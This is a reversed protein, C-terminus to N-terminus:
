ERGRSSLLATSQLGKWVSQEAYISQKEARLNWKTRTGDGVEGDKESWSSEDHTEIGHGSERGDRREGKLREGRWSGGDIGQVFGLDDLGAIGEGLLAGSGAAAVARREAAHAGTRGSRDRGGNGDLAVVEKRPLALRGVVLALSTVHVDDDHTTM